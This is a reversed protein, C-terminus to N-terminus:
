RRFVRGCIRGRHNSRGPDPFRVGRGLGARQQEQQGTATRLRPLHTTAHYTTAHRSFCEYSTTIFMIHPEQMM